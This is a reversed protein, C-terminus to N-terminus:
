RREAKPSKTAHTAIPTTAKVAEVVEKEVEEACSAWAEARKCSSSGGIVEHAKGRDEGVM